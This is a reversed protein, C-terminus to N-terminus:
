PTKTRLGSHLARIHEPGIGCCGGVIQVGNAVWKKAEHLYELATVQDVFAWKPRLWYGANAYVGTPGAFCRTLIQTAAATAKLDTHMLLLTSVHPAIETIVEELPEYLKKHSSHEQSEEIGLVIQDSSRDHACSIGVWVPLGFGATAEIITRITSTKAALTELLLLDVGEEVLIKAQEYFQPRLTADDLEGFSGFTSVSGAIFVEGEAQETAQRALEVATKNWNVFEEAYGGRQLAATTTAYTNTTIVDAGADIYNRHVQAVLSPHDRNAVACWSGADMPAGLRELETGIAGDLLITEGQELREILKM